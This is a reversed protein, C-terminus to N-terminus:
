HGYLQINRLGSGGNTNYSIKYYTYPINNIFTDDIIPINMLYPTNGINNWTMGDTSGQFELSEGRYSYFYVYLRTVTKPSPFQYTVFSYPADTPILSSYIKGDFIYYNLDSTYELFNQDSDFAFGWGGGSCIGSPSTNSTMTPILSSTVIVGSYYTLTPRLAPISIM